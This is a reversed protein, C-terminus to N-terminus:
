EAICAKEFYGHSAIRIDWKKRWKVWIKAFKSLYISNFHFNVEAVVAENTDFRRGGLSSKLCSLLWFDCPALDPSYPPHEM